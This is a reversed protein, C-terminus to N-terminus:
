TQIQPRQRRLRRALSSRINRHIRRWDQAQIEYVDAYKAAAAAYGDAVYKDYKTGKQGVGNVNLLDVAPAAIFQLHHAHVAEAALQEYHAPNQQQAVPAFQWAEPDYVVAKVSPALGGSLAAALTNYDSFIKTSIAGSVALRREAAM